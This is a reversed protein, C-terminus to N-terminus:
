FASWSNRIICLSSTLVASIESGLCQEVAGGEAVEEDSPFDGVRQPLVALM